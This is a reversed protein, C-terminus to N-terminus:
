EEKLNTILALLDEQFQEKTRPNGYNYVLLDLIRKEKSSEKKNWINEIDSVSIKFKEAECKFNQYLCTVELQYLEEEKNFREKNWTTFIPIIRVARRIGTEFCYYPEQPLPIEFDEVEVKKFEYTKIKM